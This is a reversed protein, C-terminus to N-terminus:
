CSSSSGLRDKLEFDSWNPLDQPSPITKMQPWKAVNEPPGRRRHIWSMGGNQRGGQVWVNESPMLCMSKGVYEWQEEAESVYTCVYGQQGGKLLHMGTVLHVDSAQSKRGKGLSTQEYRLNM